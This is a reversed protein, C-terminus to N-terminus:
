GRAQTSLEYNEKPVRAQGKVDDVSGEVDEVQGKGDDEPKLAKDRTKRKYEPKEKWTKRPKM